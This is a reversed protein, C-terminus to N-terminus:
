KLVDVGGANWPHCKSLRKLGLWFGKKVGHKEVAQYFYQSCTPYFRCGRLSRQHLGHDPSITRQYVRIIKLIIKKIM